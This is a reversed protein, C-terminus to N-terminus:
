RDNFNFALICNVDKRDDGKDLWRTLSWKEVAVVKALRKVKVHEKGQVKVQQEVNKQEKDHVKLHNEVKLKM